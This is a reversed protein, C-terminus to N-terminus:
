NEASLTSRGGASGLSPNCSLVGTNDINQALLLIKHNKLMKSAAMAAEVGAHGNGVVIISYDNIKM